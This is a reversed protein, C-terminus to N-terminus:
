GSPWCISSQSPPGWSLNDGVDGAHDPYAAVCTAPQGCDCILPWLVVEEGREAAADAARRALRALRAEIAPRQEALPRAPDWDYGDESRPQLALRRAPVSDNAPGLPRRERCDACHIAVATARGTADPPGFTPTTHLHECSESPTRTKRTM